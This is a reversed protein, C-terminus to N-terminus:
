EGVWSGCDELMERHAQESLTQQRRWPPPSALFWRQLARPAQSIAQFLGPEIPDCNLPAADSGTVTSTVAKLNTFVLPTQERSDTVIVPRQDALKAFGRLPPLTGDLSPTPAYVAPKASMLYPM